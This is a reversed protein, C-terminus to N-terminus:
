KAKLITTGVPWTDLGSIGHLSTALGASITTKLTAGGDGATITAGSIASEIKSVDSKLALAVAGGSGDHVFVEGNVIVTRGPQPGQTSPVVGSALRCVVIPMFDVAGAPLIVGVEDGLQPVEWVGAPVRATIDQGSPHLEVEVHVDFGSGDDHPVIKWFEADAPKYVTGIGAWMRGDRFAARMDTLDLRKSAVRRRKPRASRTM